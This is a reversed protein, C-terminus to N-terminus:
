LGTVVKQQSETVKIVFGLM